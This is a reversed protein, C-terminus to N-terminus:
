LWIFFVMMKLTLASNKLNPKNKAKKMGNTQIMRGTEKGNVMAGLIESNVFTSNKEQRQNLRFFM